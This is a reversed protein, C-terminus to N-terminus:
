KSINTMVAEVATHLIIYEHHKTQGAEKRISHNDRLEIAKKNGTHFKREDPEAANNMAEM